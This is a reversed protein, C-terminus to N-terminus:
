DIVWRGSIWVWGRHSREWRGRVWNHRPSPRVTIVEVRDAPRPGAVVEERVTCAATSLALALAPLGIIAYRNM